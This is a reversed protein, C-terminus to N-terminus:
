GAASSAAKRALFKPPGAKEGVIYGVYPIKGILYAAVGSSVYTLAIWLPLMAYQVPLSVHVQDALLEVFRLAIPHILFIGFSVGGFFRIVRSARPMAGRSRRAQWELGARWLLLAVALSYPVMVPQLTDVIQGGTLHLVDRNFFYIGFLLCWMGAWTWFILRAHSTAWAKLRPYYIAFLAGAIFWFEYTLIDRDRYRVLVRLWAPLQYVNVFQLSAQNWIMIGIEVVFAAAFILRHHRVSRKMWRVMLPFVVYLQMSVLLFYLFYQKATALSTFFTQLLYPATWEFGKLFTGQFLIYIATWAIYPIAILLFRKKWFSTATFPRDYYTYFLVLGTIFMFAERTFHFTMMLIGSSVDMWSGNPTRVNFSSLVHVCIVGLIICARMLDVEYLHPKKAQAQNM